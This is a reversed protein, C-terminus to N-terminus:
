HNYLASCSIHMKFCWAVSMLVCQSLLVTAKHNSSEAIKEILRTLIILLLVGKMCRVTSHPISLESVADRDRKIKEFAGAAWQM